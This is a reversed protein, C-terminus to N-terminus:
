PLERKAIAALLDEIECRPCKEGYAVSTHGCLFHIERRYGHALGKLYARYEGPSMCATAALRQLVEDPNWDPNTSM